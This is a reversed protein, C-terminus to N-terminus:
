NNRLTDILDKDYWAEQAYRSYFADIGEMFSERDPNLDITVGRARMAELATVNDREIEDFSWKAAKIAEEKIIKQHEDSLTAWKANNMVMTLGMWMYNIMSYHDQVEYVKSAVSHYPANDQAAVVGTKLAMYLETIPMPTVVADWYTWLDVYTNIGPVRIKLGKVDELSHVPTNATSIHRMGNDGTSLYVLGFKGMDSFIEEGIPGNVVEYAEQATDFLFPLDFIKTKDYFTSYGGTGAFMIDITGIRTSEIGERDNGLQGSHYVSIDVAENTRAKVNEAFLMLSKTPVATPNTPVYAKLKVAEQKQEKQGEASVSFSIAMLLCMMIVTIKRM